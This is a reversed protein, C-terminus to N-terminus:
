LDCLREAAAADTQRASPGSPCLAPGETAWSSSHDGSPSAKDGSPPVCPLSRRGPCASRRSAPQPRAHRSLPAAGGETANPGPRFPAGLLRRVFGRLRRTATNRIAAASEDLHLAAATLHRGLAPASGVRAPVPSPVACPRADHAVPRRPRPTRMLSGSAPPRAGAVTAPAANLFEPVAVNEPLLSPGEQLIDM